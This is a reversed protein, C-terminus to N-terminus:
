IVDTAKSRYLLALEAVSNFLKLEFIATTMKHRGFILAIYIATYRFIIFIFRSAERWFAKM